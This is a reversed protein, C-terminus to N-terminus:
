VLILSNAYKGIKETEDTKFFEGPVTKHDIVQYFYTSDRGITVKWQTEPLKLRVRSPIKMMKYSGLNNSFTKIEEGSTEGDSVFGTEILTNIVLVKNVNSM